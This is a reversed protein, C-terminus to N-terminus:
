ALADVVEGSGDFRRRGPRLDIRQAVGEVRKARRELRARRRALLPAVQEGLEATADVVEDRAVSLDCRCEFAERRADVAGVLRVGPVGLPEVRERGPEVVDPVAE